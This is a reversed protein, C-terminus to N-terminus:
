GEVEEYRGELLADITERNARWVNGANSETHCELADIEELRAMIPSLATGPRDLRRAVERTKFLRDGYPTDATQIIAELVADEIGRIPITPGPQPHDDISM